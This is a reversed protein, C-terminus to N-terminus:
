SVEGPLFGGASVHVPELLKMAFAAGGCRFRMSARAPGGICGRHRRHTGPFDPGPPHPTTTASGAPSYRSSLPPGYGAVVLLLISIVAATSPKRTRSGPQSTM